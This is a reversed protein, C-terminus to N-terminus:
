RRHHLADIQISKTGRGPIYLHLIGMGSQSAVGRQFLMGVYDVRFECADWHLISISSTEERFSRCFIWLIDCNLSRTFSKIPTQALRLPLRKGPLADFAFKWGTVISLKDQIPAVKCLREAVEQAAFVHDNGQDRYYKVCITNEILAIFPVEIVHKAFSALLQLAFVCLLIPTEERALNEIFASLKSKLRPWGRVQYEPEASGAGPDRSQPPQLFPEGAEENELSPAM